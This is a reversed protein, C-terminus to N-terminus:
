KTTARPPNAARWRAFEPGSQLTSYALSEAFLASELDLVDPGIVELTVYVLEFGFSIKGLDAVGDVVPQLPGLRPGGPVRIM